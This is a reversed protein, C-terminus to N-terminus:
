KPTELLEWLLQSLVALSTEIDSVLSTKLKKRLNEAAKTQKPTLQLVREREDGGRQTLAIRVASQTPGGARDFCTAFVRNFQGALQRAREAFIKEDRDKWRSPPCRTLLSGLAELWDAEPTIDDHLKLCFSRLDPETVGLLVSEAQEAVSPRWADLTSEPKDFAELLAHAMRDQLEPYARQLEKLSAELKKALKGPDLNRGRSKSFGFAAPIAHFVLHSPDSAAEIAKRLALTEPTLQDTNRVYPPLEVGVFLCLPRVISLLHAPAAKDEQVVATLRAVLEKRVGKIRCFQFEFTAPVKVLRQMLEADLEPQFRNDEYVAIENEHEILATLLLIPILGDRVGYPAARLTAWIRDLNIRADPKEDLIRLIADLAPRVRCFDSRKGEKPFSIGWEGEIERHIGSAHLVSLYMSKEPPAKDAPLGLASVSAQEIMRRFLLQRAAAAASSIAHRNVLENAIKPAQNFLEDCRASLFTQPSAGENLATVSGGCYYWAIESEQRGIGRFGVWEHIRNELNQGVAAIQRAVEEAALRDDKLEPTNREVWHWRELELAFGVLDELPRSIAVLVQPADALATAAQEAQLRHAATECLVVAIIGDAPHAPELSAAEREFETATFFQVDFHRLNGTQIYHRRAVIPRNDLRKRVVNAISPASGVKETANALVQELNVSTHSWLAFSGGSRLFLISRERLRDLRRDLDKPYGLALSIIEKTPSLERSEVVSLIAVTKLICQDESDEGSASRVVADIHNWHSRFSQAGLRHSFNHAAFDYFDALRYVTETNAEQTAFDPLAYPESSLLFSFLSRENQGFRRFFRTLVPLVTSHLPYLDAALRGLATKPAGPGFLGLDIASAMDEKAKGKWGWLAESDRLGLAAALLTAIQTLPQNFILEEFRGGVKEWERQASESLKDAYAAFGQHLLGLTFLPADGSRASSEGLLQLFYVDQREPHLAAFELFKGLEDLIILIGGFLGREVLERTSFEIAEVAERDSMAGSSLLRDLERRCSLKRRGDIGRAIAERLARVLATSLAERSGTVLVPLLKSANRALGLESRLPRLDKPLESASRSLLNALLLAFSSKGSGFDGTIRWARQGSDPHLGRGLRRLHISTEPTVVYGELAQSDNFDRELQASRVFRGGVQILDNIKPSPM